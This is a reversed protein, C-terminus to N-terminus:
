WRGSGRAGPDGDLVHERLEMWLRDLVNHRKYRDSAPRAGFLM